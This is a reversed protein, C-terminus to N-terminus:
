SIPKKLVEEDYDSLEIKRVHIETTYDQLFEVVVDLDEARLVIVGRTLKRYPISDLLGRRRYRYKGGHSSSNQGYFKQCFKSIESNRIKPPLSFIVIAGNMIHLEACLRLYVDQSIAAFLFICIIHLEACLLLFV